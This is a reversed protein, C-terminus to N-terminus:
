LEEDNKKEGENFRVNELLVVEGNEMRPATDLYDKVLPVKRGLLNSMAKAGAKMAYEISALSARLRKDSTIRGNKVPVNLDARILVRKGALSLDTMRIFSM